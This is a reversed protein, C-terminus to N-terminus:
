WAPWSPPATRAREDILAALLKQDIADIDSNEYQLRKM